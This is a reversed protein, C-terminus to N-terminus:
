FNKAGNSSADYHTLLYISVTACYTYRAFTNWNWNWTQTWTRTRSRTRTQTRTRTRTRTRTWIKAPTRTWTLTLNFITSHINRDSMVFIYITSEWPDYSTACFNLPVRVHSHIPLIRQFRPAEGKLVSRDISVVKMLNIESSLRKLPIFIQVNSYRVYFYM